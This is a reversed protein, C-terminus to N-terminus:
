MPYPDHEEISQWENIDNALANLDSSEPAAEKRPPWCGHSRRKNGGESAPKLRKVRRTTTALVPTALVDEVLLDLDPIQLTMRERFVDCFTSTWYCSDIAHYIFDDYNARIFGKMVALSYGHICIIGTDQWYLCTCTKQTWNVTRMSSPTNLKCVVFNDVHQDTMNCQLQGYNSRYFDLRDQVPQVVLPMVDMARLRNAETM